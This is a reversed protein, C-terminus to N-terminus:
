ICNVLSEEYAIKTKDEVFITRFGQERKLEVQVTAQPPSNGLNVSWKYLRVEKQKDQIKSKQTSNSTRHQARALLYIAKVVVRYIGKM